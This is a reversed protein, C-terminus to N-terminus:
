GNFSNEWLDSNVKKKGFMNVIVGIQRQLIQCLLDRIGEEQKFSKEWPKQLIFSVGEHGRVHSVVIEKVRTPEEERIWMQLHRRLSQGQYESGKLLENM